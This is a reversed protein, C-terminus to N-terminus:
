APRHGPELRRALARTEQDLEGEGAPAFADLLAREADDVRVGAVEDELAAATAPDWELELRAYVDDLVARIAAGDRVVLSASLLWGGRVLRQATGALKVAGRANVTYRGPCYEGPVEGVRADAGLARLAQALLRAADAFRDHVGAIADPGDGILDLVLSEGHYAAAHGGPLRAVPEFGRGRATAVADAYGPRLRDLRGFALTPGPRYLRLTPAVEGAAVRRLLAHSVAADLAPHDAFGDRLLQVRRV